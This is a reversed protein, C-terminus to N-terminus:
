SNTKRILLNRKFVKLSDVDLSALSKIKWEKLQLSLDFNLEKCLAEIEPILTEVTELKSNTENGDIVKIDVNDIVEDSTNNTALVVDTTKIETKKKYKSSKVVNGDEDYDLNNDIEDPTYITGSFVEPAYWKAGNSIARAWLMNRPYSKWAQSNLLNAKKADEITFTSTGVEEWKGSTFERFVITCKDDTHETVKYNYKSSSKILAAITTASLTVKGKVIYIDRMSAIPPLGLEQGAMIKTFSKAVDSADSFYESASFMKAIDSVEKLELKKLALDAM